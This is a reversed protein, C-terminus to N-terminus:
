CPALAENIALPGAGGQVDGGGPLYVANGVAAAGLGHRPVQLAPLSAWSNTTTDYVESEPFVGKANAQNGEGGFTFIKKGIHANAIGGRKTPMPALEIWKPSQATLNLALTTARNTAPSGVRGAIVYLVGDILAGGAHDRGEPLRLKDHSAWKNAAVDYTALATGSTMNASKGKGTRTQLGGAVYVTKAQVGLVSSGSPANTMEALEDWKNSAPDYRFTKGTSIWDVAGTIGGFVYVKGDIAAVNPHHMPVPLPAAISWNDAQTDYVEVSGTVAGDKLGGIIYIKNGLAASSHEQRSGGGISKLTKWCYKEAAPVALVSSALLALAGTALNAFILM